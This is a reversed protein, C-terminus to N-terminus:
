VCRYEGTQEDFSCAVHNGDNSLILRIEARKRTQPDRSCLDKRLGDVYERAAEYSARAASDANRSVIKAEANTAM